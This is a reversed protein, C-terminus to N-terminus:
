EKGSDKDRMRLHKALTTPTVQDIFQHFRSREDADEEENIPISAAVIVEEFMWIDVNTCIALAISDAPSAKIELLPMLENNEGKNQHLFGVKLIAQFNNEELSNIIVKDLYINGIKMLSIMLNYTILNQSNSDKLGLLIQNAQEHNVSIPVQIRKSPDTLLIIPNRTLADLALGIVSM